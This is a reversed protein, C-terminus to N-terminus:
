VALQEQVYAFVKGAVLEFIGLGPGVPDLDVLVPVRENRNITRAPHHDHSGTALDALNLHRHFEDGVDGNRIRAGDDHTRMDIIAGREGAADLDHRSRLEHLLHLSMHNRGHPLPACATAAPTNAIDTRLAPRAAASAGFTSRGRSPAFASMARSSAPVM